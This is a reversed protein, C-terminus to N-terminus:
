REYIWRVVYETGDTAAEARKRSTHTSHAHADRYVGSGGSHTFVGWLGTEVRYSGGCYSCKKRKPKGDGSDCSVFSHSNCTFRTARAPPQRLDSAGAGHRAKESESARCEYAFDVPGTEANEAPTLCPWDQSMCAAVHEYSEQSGDSYTCM